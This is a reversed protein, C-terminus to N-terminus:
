REPGRFPLSKFFKSLPHRMMITLVKFTVDDFKTVDDNMKELGQQSFLAITGHINVFEAIHSTQLHM